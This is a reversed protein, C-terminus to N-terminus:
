TELADHKAQRTADIRGDRGTNGRLGQTGFGDMAERQRRTM